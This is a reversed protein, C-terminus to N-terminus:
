VRAAEKAEEFFDLGKYDILDLRKKCFVRPPTPGCNRGKAILLKRSRKGSGTAFIAVPEDLDCKGATETGEALL